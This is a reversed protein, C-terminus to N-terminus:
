DGFAKLVDLKEKSLIPNMTKLKHANAAGDKLINVKPGFSISTSMVLKERIPDIPPNTVQAFKQRFFDTFNRQVSSFCALPTDDGMSGTEEKGSDIMPRIISEM